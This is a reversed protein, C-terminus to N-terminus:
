ADLEELGLGALVPINGAMAYDGALAYDNGAIVPINDAGITVIEMEDTDTGALGVSQLIKAGGFAIMGSGLNKGLESKLVMPTIVGLALPGYKSLTNQLETAQQGEKPTFLFKNIYGALAVGGLVGGITMVLNGPNLAGISRKRTSRKRTTKRSTKRRAM